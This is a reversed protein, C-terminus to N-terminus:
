FINYVTLRLQIKLMIVGTKVTVHDKLFLVSYEYAYIIFIFMGENCLQYSFGGSGTFGQQHGLVDRGERWASLTECLTVNVHPPDNMISAHQHQQGEEEALVLYM